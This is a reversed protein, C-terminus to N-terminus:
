ARRSRLRSLRSTLGASIAEARELLMPGFRMMLSASLVAAVVSVVAAGLMDGPYHIGLYIRSWAVVLGIGIFAFALTRRGFLALTAAYAFFVTAHNSPFSSNPRHEVLTHGLGIVFPRPSYALSGVVGNVLLAIVLAMVAALAVFRVAREGGIWILALHLPVLFILARAAVIALFVVVSSPEAGANLALFVSHNLSDL